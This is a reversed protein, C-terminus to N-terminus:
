KASSADAQTDPQLGRPAIQTHPLNKATPWTGGGPTAPNLRCREPSLSMIAHVSFLEAM